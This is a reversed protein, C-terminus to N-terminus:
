RKELVLIEEAAGALRAYFVPGHVHEDGLVDHVEVAVLAATAHRHRAQTLRLSCLAHGTQVATPTLVDVGEDQLNNSNNRYHNNFQMSYTTDTCM